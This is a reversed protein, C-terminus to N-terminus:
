EVATQEDVKRPPSDSSKLAFTNTITPIGNAPATVSRPMPEDAMITDSSAVAASAEVAHLPGTGPSKEDKKIVKQEDLQGLARHRTAQQHLLLRRSLRVFRKQPVVPTSPRYCYDDDAETQTFSDTYTPEIHTSRKEPNNMVPSERPS